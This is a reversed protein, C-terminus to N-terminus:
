GESRVRGGGNKMERWPLRRLEDYAAAYAEAFAAPNEHQM